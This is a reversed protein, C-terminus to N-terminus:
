WVCSLRRDGRAHPRPDFRQVTVAVPSPVVTAGRTPAHISVTARHAQSRAAWDGRAHPRPDFCMLNRWHSLASQRGERPPTSRFENRPAPSPKGPLRGERPPTSRFENAAPLHPYDMTAGRTPPPDFGRDTEQNRRARSTAGRTPAHISVAEIREALVGGATAGRTPAHISVTAEEGGVKIPATAGRTPAHISVKVAFLAVDDPLDGRAHPRPDFGSDTPNTYVRM